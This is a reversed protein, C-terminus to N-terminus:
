SSQSVTGDAAIRLRAQPAGGPCSPRADPVTAHGPRGPADPCVTSPHVVVKANVPFPAGSPTTVTVTVDDVTLAPVPAYGYGPGPGPVRAIGCAADPEASRSPCPLASTPGSVFLPVDQEYCGWSGCTTLHVTTVLPAVAQDVEVGFGRLPATGSSQGDAGPGACGGLALVAVAVLLLRM